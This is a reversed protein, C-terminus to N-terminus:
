YSSFCRLLIADFRERTLPWGTRLWGLPLNTSITSCLFTISLIIANPANVIKLIIGFVVVLGRCESSSYALTKKLAKGVM